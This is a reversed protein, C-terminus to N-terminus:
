ARKSREWVASQRGKKWRFFGAFVAYNMLCFYYPVYFRSKINKKAQITGVSAMGYFVLQLVFLIKLGNPEM